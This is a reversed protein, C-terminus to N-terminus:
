PSGLSVEADPFKDLLLDYTPVARLCLKIDQVSRLTKECSPCIRLPLSYIKDRGHVKEENRMQSIAAAVAWFPGFMGLLLTGWFSGGSQKVWTKECQTLVSILHDTPAECKICKDDFPLERKLLMREILLEPSINYPPLGARVRLETWAPIQVNTGCACPAVRGAAAESITMVLGCSCQIRFDM